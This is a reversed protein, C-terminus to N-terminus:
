KGQVPRNLVDSNVHLGAIRWGDDVRKLVIRFAAPGAEFEGAVTYDAWVGNIRTGPFAGDGVRGAPAYLQKLRGLASFHRFVEPLRALDQPGLWEPAARRTLEDPKWERAMATVAEAAFTAASANHLRSDAVVKVGYAIGAVVLALVLHGSWRLLRNPDPLRASAELTM